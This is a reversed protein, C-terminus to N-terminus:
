TAFEQASFQSSAFWNVFLNAYIRAFLRLLECVLLFLLNNQSSLEKSNKEEHLSLVRIM